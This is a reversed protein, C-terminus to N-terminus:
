ASPSVTASAAAAARTEQLETIQEIAAARAADALAEDAVDMEARAAEIAERMKERAANHAAIAEPSWDGRLLHNFFKGKPNKFVVLVENEDESVDRRVGELTLKSVDM